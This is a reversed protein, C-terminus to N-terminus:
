LFSINIKKIIATIKSIKNKFGKNFQIPLSSYKEFRVVKQTNNIEFKNKLIENIGWTTNYARCLSLSIIVGTTKAQKIFKNNFKIKNGIKPITPAAIAVKTLKKNIITKFSPEKLFNFKLM